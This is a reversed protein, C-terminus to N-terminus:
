RNYRFIKKTTENHPWAVFYARINYVCSLLVAASMLAIGLGRAIPNLPFVQLWERLLYAIGTAVLVYLLPVLLSLGVAGGLGVLLWGVLAYSLLMKTRYSKLHRAYFYIGTICMVLTFIDLIPVRALWLEPYEPGRIFLHVGVAGFQKLVILPAEWKDPIGLWLLFQNARMLNICLLPLSILVLFVSLIRQWSARQNRWADLLVDRQWYITLLVLWVLGPVYLLSLWALIVGYFMLASKAHRQLLIGTALLMPIACLYLVDYSAIRSVHLVWASTAFLATGFLATRRGHWRWIVYAFAVVATMGYLANPVRGIFAGFDTFIHFFLSRVTELPLYFPHNYVAHLGVPTNLTNLEQQSVGATLTGLRYFMLAILSLVGAVGILVRLRHSKAYRIIQKM